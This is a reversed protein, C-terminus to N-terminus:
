EVFKAEVDITDGTSRGTANSASEHGSGQQNVYATPDFKGNQNFGNSEPRPAPLEDEWGKANLWTAPNPIYQGNNRKWQEGHKAADIATLIKEQLSANSELKFKAWAKEAQGKSVKKPYASWFVDFGSEPVTNVTTIDENIDKKVLCKPKGTIGNPSKGLHFTPTKGIGNPSKGLHSNMPLFLSEDAFAFWKTRDAARANYVGSVLVGHEVLRNLAGTIRDSTLYPFLEKLARVSNYTWTRGDRENEGNAKNRSIWFQFNSIIIAEPLGYAKAHDIDFSHNM